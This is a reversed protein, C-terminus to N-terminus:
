DFAHKSFEVDCNIPGIKITVRDGVKLSPEKRLLECLVNLIEPDIPADRVEKLDEKNPHLEFIILKPRGTSPQIGFCEQFDYGFLVFIRHDIVIGYNQGPIHDEKIKFRILKNNHKALKDRM